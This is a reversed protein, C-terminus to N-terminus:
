PESIVNGTEESIVTSHGPNGKPLAVGKGLVFKTSYGGYLGSPFYPISKVIKFVNATEFQIQSSATNNMQINEVGDVGMVTVSPLGKGTIRVGVSGRGSEPVIAGDHALKAMGAWKPLVDYRVVPGDSVVDAAKLDILGGPMYRLHKAWLNKEFGDPAQKQQDELKASIDSNIRDGFIHLGTVGYTSFFLDPSRGLLKKLVNLTTEKKRNDQSDYGTHLGCDRARQFTVKNQSVGTVGANIYNGGIDNNDTGEPMSRGALIIREVRDTDGTLQWIVPSFASTVIYLKESGKDIQVPIVNTEATQGAVSVTSVTNGEYVGIFIIKEDTQPKPLSCNSSIKRSTEAQANAEKRMDAIETESLIGDANVDLTRFAKEAMTALELISLKGDKNPDLALVEALELSTGSGGGSEKNEKITSMEDTMIVSDNDIDTAMIQDTKRDIHKENRATLSSVVENRTVKGDFDTDYTMIKQVQRRRLENNQKEKLANIDDPTLSTKDQAGQRIIGLVQAIYQEHYQSTMLRRSLPAPIDSFSAYANASAAEESHAVSCLSCLVLAGMLIVNKVQM